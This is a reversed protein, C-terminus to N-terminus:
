PDSYIVKRAALLAARLKEPTSIDPATAEARVALGVGVSGVAPHAGPKVLHKAELSQLLAPTVIILDALKGAELQGAMDGVSGYVATVRHGTQTHFDEALKPLVPKVAGAALVHLDAAHATASAVVIGCLVLFACLLTRLSTA